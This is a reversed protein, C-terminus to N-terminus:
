NKEFIVEQIIEFEATKIQSYFDSKRLCRHYNVQSEDAIYGDDLLVYGERNLSKSIIELTTQLNGIVPGIAGLIVVDFGKINKIMIRIDGVVFNCKDHVNFKEAYDKASEIFASLGDIGKVTCDIHRAIYISVASKGCGLDLIKLKKRTINDKILALMISPDAGIEWLDQLIYPIYPFLDAEFADLSELISKKLEEKRIRNHM